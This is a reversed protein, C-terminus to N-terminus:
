RSSRSTGRRVPHLSRGATGAAPPAPTVPARRPWRPRAASARSLEAALRSLPARGGARAALHRGVDSADGNGVAQVLTPETLEDIDSVGDEDSGRRPELWRRSVETAVGRWVRRRGSGGAGGAARCRGARRHGRRHRPRGRRPYRSRGSRGARPAPRRRHDAAVHHERAPRRGRGAPTEKDRESGNPARRPRDSSSPPRRRPSIASGPRALRLRDTHMSLERGFEAVADAQAQHSEVIAQAEARRQEAEHRAHGLIEGATRRADDIIQGAQSNASSRVGDAYRELEARSAAIAAAAEELERQAQQRGGARLEEAEENALALISGIRAGVDASASSHGARSELDAIRHVAEDLDRELQVDKDQMRTLEITRDAAIRRATTLAKQMEELTSKVQDPDFGRLVTRFQPDESM